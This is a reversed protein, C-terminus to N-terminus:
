YQYLGSEMNWGDDRYRMPSLSGHSKFGSDGIEKLM